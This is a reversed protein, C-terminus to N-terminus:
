GELGVDCKVDVAFGERMEGTLFTRGEKRGELVWPATSQRAISQNRRLNWGTTPKDRGEM